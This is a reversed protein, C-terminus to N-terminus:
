GTRGKEILRIIEKLETASIKQEKAFFSVLDSYSDSFYSKVVSSMFQRKYEKRSIAPRYEYVNGHKTSKVYQKRELNKITSALTTYPPKPDDYQERVDKIFTKGLRWIILMAEEEQHTLKEM